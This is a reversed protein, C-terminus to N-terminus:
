RCNVEAAGHALSQYFCRDVRTDVKVTATDDADGYRCVLFINRGDDFVHGVYWVSYANRGRSISPILEAHEDPPGDFLSVHSLKIKDKTAPCRPKPASAITPPSLASICILLTCFWGIHGINPVSAEMTESRGEM